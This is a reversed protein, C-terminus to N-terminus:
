SPEVTDWFAATTPDALARERVCVGIHFTPLAPRVSVADVRSRLASGELVLGPVVGIGVGLAVLSLVAEHGEAEAAVKPQIRRRRFWRDVEERALGHAPLVMAARRWDVRGGFGSPAVFRLPTHAVPQAAVGPPIRTPLGAVAIDVDGDLLRVLADAAYGTTLDLRVLPYAARFRALLDPVFSQAATVTCYIRL